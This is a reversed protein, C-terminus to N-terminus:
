FSLRRMSEVSTEDPNIVFVVINPVGNTRSLERAYAEGSWGAINRHAYYVIQPLPRDAKNTARQYQAFVIEDPRANQAIFDGITKYASTEPGVILSYDWVCAACCLLLSTAVVVRPRMRWIPNPRGWLKAVLLGAAIALFPAAKLVSFEHAATFNFLLLHHLIVPLVAAFFIASKVSRSTSGSRRSWSAWLVILVIDAGYALAYYTVLFLWGLPQWPHFSLQDQQGLGSRLAFRQHLSSYFTHFGAIQSYQWVTLGLAAITGFVASLTLRFRAPQDRTIMAHLVVSLAFLVGLWESYVFAFVVVGFAICEWSRVSLSTSFRLWFYIGSAFMVQAFIDSMYINAQLWLTIPAFIYVIFAIVAPATSNTPGLIRRASLYVFLGSLFHLALGFIQIPLVGPKVRLVKFAVYPAYYALPPFSTYYFNGEADKHESAENNINKNAANPYTTIPAFHAKALGEQDWIELHRLVTATLWERPHSLPKDLLPLRILVSIGFIAFLFAANRARM